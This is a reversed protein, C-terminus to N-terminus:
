SPDGAPLAILLVGLASAAIAVAIHRREQSPEEDITM